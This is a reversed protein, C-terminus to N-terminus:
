YYLKESIKKEELGNRQEPYTWNKQFCENKQEPFNRTKPLHMKRFRSSVWDFRRAAWPM